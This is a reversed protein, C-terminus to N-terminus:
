GREQIFLSYSYIKANISKEIYTRWKLYKIENVKTLISLFGNGQLTPHISTMFVRYRKYFTVTVYQNFQELILM